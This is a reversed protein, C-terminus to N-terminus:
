LSFSFFRSNPNIESETAAIQLFLLRVVKVVTVVTVVLNETLKYSHNVSRFFPLQSKFVEAFPFLSLCRDRGTGGDGWRGTEIIFMISIRLMVFLNPPTTAFLAMLREIGALVIWAMTPSFPAPLDVIM